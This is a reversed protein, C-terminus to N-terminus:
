APENAPILRGAAFGSYEDLFWEAAKKMLISVDDGKFAFTMKLTGLYNDTIYVLVNLKHPEVWAASALCAYNRGGPTGIRDGSYGPQPFTGSIQKGLGFSLRHEGAANAYEWVGEDGRFQFRTRAIGMPNDHLRYWRGDIKQTFASTPEGRQPLITLRDITRQLAAQSEPDEPLPGDALEGWLEEWFASEIGTGTPGAGQTDAMCAFVFDKDPFCFALQSAMGRFSFGNHKLRWIQYGYGPRGSLANDIQKSTAARVLAEPLLQEGKWRGGNTCVYAVKAMDRLTCIVGSGGWSTGEPTQICSTDKSFDIPDLLRERMYQLFPVGALREVITNLVVTAATDYSFITGPPHSPTARFFTAAWDRDHRTYSPDTHPAAMVLLDRITTDALYPHPNPPAKDPFYSVVRDDLRLRGEDAMMGVALAVFSKSISYMRHPSAATYPAWYGEAAIRGHRLLLFGHLNTQEREIRELFRLVAASPIGVRDPSPSATFLEDHGM